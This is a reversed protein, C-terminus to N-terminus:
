RAVRQELTSHLLKGRGELRHSVWVRPCSERMGEGGEGGGGAEKWHFVTWRVASVTLAAEAPRLACFKLLVPLREGPGVTVRRREIAVVAEGAGVVGEMEGAVAAAAAPVAAAAVGEGEGGGTGVPKLSSLPATAFIDAM